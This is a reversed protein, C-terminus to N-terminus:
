VLINAILEEKLSKMEAAEKLAQVEKQLTAL